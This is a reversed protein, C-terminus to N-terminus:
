ILSITSLNLIYVYIKLINTQTFTISIAPLYLFKFPARKLIFQNIKTSLSILKFFEYLLSAVIWWEYSLNRKEIVTATIFMKRTNSYFLIVCSWEKLKILRLIQFINTRNNTSKLFTSISQKNNNWFIFNSHFVFLYSFSFCRNCLFKQIKFEFSDCLWWSRNFLDNIIM